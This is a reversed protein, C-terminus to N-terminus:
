KESEPATTLDIFLEELNPTAPESLQPALARLMLERELSLDLLTLEIGDRVKRERLVGPVKSAFALGNGNSPAFRKQVRQKLDDLTADVILRGGHLIGVRDAVREVDGLIHSSFLVSRGERALLDIMADLFERRMVVDLGMAPDDLVLQEPDGAMAFVLSLQARQGRSLHRIRSSKSLQLRQLADDAYKRDFRTRTGAEFALAQDVRMREYLPHGESVLGVRTRVDNSLKASDEGLLQARGSDPALFGLLIRLATTKGAGNRGLLAFVEGPRVRFSLGRLVEREGFSRRVDDFRIADSM